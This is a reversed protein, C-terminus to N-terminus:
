SLRVEMLVQLRASHFTKKLNAGIIDADYRDIKTLLILM